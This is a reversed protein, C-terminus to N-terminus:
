SNEPMAGKKQAIIQALGQMTRFQALHFDTDEFRMNFNTEIEEILEIIGFSDVLGQRYFDETVQYNAGLDPNRQRFWGVVWDEIEKKM